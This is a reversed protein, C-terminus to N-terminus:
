PEEPAPQEGRPHGGRKGHGMGMPGKALNDALQARQAQDLLPAVTALVKVLKEAHDGRDKGTTPVFSAADFKDSVFADLAAELQEHMAEFRPKGEPKDLGADALAQEVRARQDASLEIGQMFPLGHRDKDPGRAEGRERGDQERDPRAREHDRGQDEHAAMRERITAVLQTRQAATLTDHLTQFAAAMKAPQKAHEAALADLKAQFAAEDIKGARVADALEGFVAPRGAQEHEAPALGDVVGQLTARQEATLKLEELAIQFAMMPGGKGHLKAAGEPGPAANGTRAATTAMAGSDPQTACGVTTALGALLTLSAFHKWFIRKM